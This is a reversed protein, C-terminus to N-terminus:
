LFVLGIKIRLFHVIFIDHKGTPTIKKYLINLKFNLIVAGGRRGNVGDFTVFWLKM